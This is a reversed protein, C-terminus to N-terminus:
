DFHGGMLYYYSCYVGYGCKSCDSKLIDPPIGKGIARFDNRFMNLGFIDYGWRNPPEKGNMDFSMIACITENELCNKKLWKLSIIEGEENQYYKDFYYRDQKSVPRQNMYTPKYDQSTFEDVIRLYPKFLEPITCNNPVDKKPKALERLYEGDEQTKIVTYMYELESYKTSWQSILRAQKTNDLSRPLVLFTVGLILLFVVVVEIITFGNKTSRDFPQFTSHNNKDNLM